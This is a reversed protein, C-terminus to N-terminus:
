LGDQIEVPVKHRATSVVQNTERREFNRRPHNGADFLSTSATREIGSM